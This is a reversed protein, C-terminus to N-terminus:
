VGGYNQPFKEYNGGKADPEGSVFYLAFDTGFCSDIKESHFVGISDAYKVLHLFDSQRIQRYVSSSSLMFNM